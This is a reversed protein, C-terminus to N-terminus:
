EGVQISQDDNNDNLKSSDDELKQRVRGSGISNWVGQLRWLELAM